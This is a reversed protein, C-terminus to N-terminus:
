LEELVEQIAARTERAKLIMTIGSHERWWANRIVKRLAAALKPDEKLLLIPDDGPKLDHPIIGYELLIDLWPQISRVFGEQGLSGFRRESEAYYHNIQQKLSENSISSFLGTSKLDEFTTSTYPKNAGRTSWLFSLKLFEFDPDKPLEQNWIINNKFSRITDPYSLDLMPSNALNLLHQLSHFRFSNYHTLRDLNLIDNEIEQDLNVLYNKISTKQVRHENWNNVQLAILIGIVVLFVEGIGYLLYKRAQDKLIFSKRVKRLFSLM